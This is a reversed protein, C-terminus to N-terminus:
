RKAPSSLASAACSSRLRALLPSRPSRSSLQTAEAVAQEKRHLLCLALVRAASGEEWFTASPCDQAHQDLLRLARQGDAARLAAQAASLLRLESAASCAKSSNSALTLRTVRKGPIPTPLDSSRWSSPLSTLGPEPEPISDRVPPPAVDGPNRAAVLPPPLPASKAANEARSAPSVKPAVNEERSAPLGQRVEGRRPEATKAPEIQGQARAALNPRPAEREVRARSLDIPLPTRAQLQEIAPRLAPESARPAVSAIPQVATRAHPAHRPKVLAATGVGGAAALTCILVLKGASTATGVTGAAATSGSPPAAPPAALHAALATRVRRKASPDPLEAPRAKAILERAEPSLDTM